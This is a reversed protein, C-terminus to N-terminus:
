ISTKALELSVKKSTAESFSLAENATRLGASGASVFCCDRFEEDDDDDDDAAAAADDDDEDDDNFAAIEELLLSM